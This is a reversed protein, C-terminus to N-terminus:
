RRKSEESATGAPRGLHELVQEAGSEAADDMAVAGTHIPAESPQLPAPCVQFAVELRQDVVRTWGFFTKAMVQHFWGLFQKGKPFFNAVARNRPLRKAALHLWDALAHVGKQQATVVVRERVVEALLQHLM